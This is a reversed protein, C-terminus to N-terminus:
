GNDDPSRRSSPNAIDATEVSAAAHLMGLREIWSQGDSHSIDLREDGDAEIVRLLVVASAPLEDADLQAAIGLADLVDGIPRREDSTDLATTPARWGTSTLWCAADADVTVPMTRTEVDPDDSTLLMIRHPVDAPNAPRLATAVSVPEPTGDPRDRHAYANNIADTIDVLALHGDPMAIHLTHRTAM